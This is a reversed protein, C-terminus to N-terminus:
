STSAPPKAQALAAPSSSTRRGRVALMLFEMAMPTIAKRELLFDPSATNRGFRRINIHTGAAAISGLVICIRSGDPLRGDLLPRDPSLPQGVFQAINNAAAQVDAETGFRASTLIIQGAKEVYIKDAGNVMIENVDPDRLLPVIPSLFFELSAEFAAHTGAGARMLPVSAVTGPPENSRPPTPAPRSPVRSM